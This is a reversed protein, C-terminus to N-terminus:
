SGLLSVRVQYVQPAPGGEADPSAAPKAVGSGHAWAAVIIATACHDVPCVDIYGQRRGHM